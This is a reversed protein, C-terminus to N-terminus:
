ARGWTGSAWLARTGSRDYIVVNGDNQVSLYAGQSGSVGADWAAHGGGDKGTYYITLSGTWSSMSGNARYLGYTNTAWLPANDSKRYLVLNGDSQMLLWTTLSARWQGAKLSFGGEWLSENGNFSGQLTGTETHWLYGYHDPAARNVQFDGHGDVVACAQGGGWTGTSWVARGDPRYVVLNGDEQLIAHAGPNGWTGSSWVVPGPRGAWVLSLVLNGDPQMVLVASNSQLRQGASLQEGPRLAASSGPDERDGPSCPRPATPMGVAVASTASATAAGAALVLAGTLAVVCRRFPGHKGRINM